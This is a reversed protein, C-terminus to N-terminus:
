SRPRARRARKTVSRNETGTSPHLTARSAEGKRRPELVSLTRAAIESAGPIRFWRVHRRFQRITALLHFDHEECMGRLEKAHYLAKETANELTAEKLGFVQSQLMYLECLNAHAYAVAVLNEGKRDLEAYLSALTWLDRRTPKGPLEDQTEGKDREGQGRRKSLFVDLTLYQVIAWGNKRDQLFARWYYARSRELCDTVDLEADKKQKRNRVEKHDFLEARRKEASALLGLAEGDGESISELATRHRELRSLTRDLAERTKDTKEGAIRFSGPATKEATDIATHMANSARHVRLQQLQHLMDRPLSAYAALSAWDHRSASETRLRKRADCLVVRPDKGWLLGGYVTETVIISGAVSLPFQSAIVLPVGSVHLAHAISAGDGYGQGVNASECSALTVVTPSSLGNTLAGRFSRIAATLRDGNVIDLRDPNWKDHLALGYREDEGERVPAGHALIHVHTYAVTSCAEQIAELSANPLFTLHDSINQLRAEQDKPEVSIDNFKTWPDLAWRLALLHEVVPVRMERFGTAAFLIRPEEPWQVPSDSQRRVERTICVPTDSQFVLYQGAGPCGAPSTAMEFPLMALESASLILRLQIITNNDPCNRAMEAVLGPIQALIASMAKATQRIQMERTEQSDKYGLARLRTRIDEHDHPIRITQAPHDECLAIYDTLPSLLQGHPEGKRLLELKVTRIQAM